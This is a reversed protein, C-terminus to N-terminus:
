FRMLINRNTSRSQGQLISRAIFLILVFRFSYAILFFSFRRNFALLDISTKTPSGNNDRRNDHWGAGGGVMLVVLVVVVVVAVVVVMMMVIVVMVVNVVMLMVVMM